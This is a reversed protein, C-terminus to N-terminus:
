ITWRNFMNVMVIGWLNVLISICLLFYALKTPKQGIGSAVLILVFPMFDQAFRYGFQAFGVGGWLAIVSQTVIIAVWCALMLLSKKARLSYLLVPSTFWIATSHLSPIIFPPSSSFVPLKLFLAEIHRQIYAINMFGQQFIPDQAIGPILSYPSLPSFNGFRLFNYTADLLVFFIIGLNLVSFNYLNKRNLPWFKNLFYVYFFFITFVVTTRAWFSMGLLIGILLLRQKGFTELLALLLFFLATIHALFWASGVSSLYWHNTGFAFSIAVLIATKVSYNLRKILLYVLVSNVSGLLISSLTQSAGKGLLFVYPMLIIAPMPPYVVYLHGQWKILENLWPFSETVYLQGHLFADALYIFYNYPTDNGFASISYIVLTTIFLLLIKM